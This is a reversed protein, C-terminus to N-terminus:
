RKNDNSICRRKVKNIVVCKNRRKIVYLINTRIAGPVVRM